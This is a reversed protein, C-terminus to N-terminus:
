GFVPLIYRIVLGCSFSRAVVMSLMCLLQHSTQDHLKPSIHLRVSLCVYMNSYKAGRWVAIYCACVTAIISLSAFLILCSSFHFYNSVSLQSSVRLISDFLLWAELCPCANGPEMMTRKRTTCQLFIRIDVSINHRTKVSGTGYVNTDTFRRFLSARARM